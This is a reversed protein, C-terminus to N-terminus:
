RHDCPPKRVPPTLPNKKEIAIIAPEYSPISNIPIKFRYNFNDTNLTDLFDKILAQADINKLLFNQTSKYCNEIESIVHQLCLFKQTMSRASQISKTITM